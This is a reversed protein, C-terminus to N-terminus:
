FIVNNENKIIAEEKKEKKRIFYNSQMGFSGRIKSRPFFSQFPSYNYDPHNPIKVKRSRPKAKQGM